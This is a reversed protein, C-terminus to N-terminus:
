LNRWWRRLQLRGQFIRRTTDGGGQVQPNVVKFAASALAPTVSVSTLFVGPANSGFFAEAPVPIVLTAGEQVTPPTVGFEASAVTPIIAVSGMLIEPAEVTFEASAAPPTVTVSTLVVGPPIAEFEAAAPTPAVSVSGLYATPDTVDFEVSAAPPTITISGLVVSPDTVDFEASATAPTVTIPDLGGGAAKFSVALAAWNLNQAQTWAIAQPAATTQRIYAAGTAWAGQDTEWLDTLSGDPTSAVTSEHVHAGTVIQDNSDPTCSASPATSTGSNAGSGGVPSAQAADLLCFAMAEVVTNIGSSVSLNFTGTPPNILFWCEVRLKISQSTEDAVTPVQTMAAGNYTVTLPQVTGMRQILYAVLVRNSGSGITVSLNGSTVNNLILGRAKSANDVTPAAM